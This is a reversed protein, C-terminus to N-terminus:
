VYKSYNKLLLKGYYSHLFINDKRDSEVQVKLMAQNNSKVRVLKKEKRRM